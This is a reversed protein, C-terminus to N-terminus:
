LTDTMIKTGATAVIERMTVEGDALKRRNREKNPL